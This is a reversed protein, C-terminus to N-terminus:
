FSFLFFYGEGNIMVIKVFDKQMIIEQVVDVYFFNVKKKM